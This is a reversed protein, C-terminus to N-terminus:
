EVAEPFLKAVDEVTSFMANKIAMDGIFKVKTNEPVLTPLRDDGHLFFLDYGHARMFIRFGEADQGFQRLGFPNLEVLIYPVREPASLLQIAGELIKQDAGETDMKILKVPVSSKLAVAQMEMPHKKERSLANEFWLGPDWLCSGSTDDSDLYFTVKEERIWVPHPKVDVNAFGNVELNKQLGPWHNPLPEYAVVKGKAGVCRAMLLTFFGINAGIDIAVDGEQLARLMIWVMEPEYCVRNQYHQLLWSDHKSDPNLLLRFRIIKGHAELCIPIEIM